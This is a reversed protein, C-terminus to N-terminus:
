RRKKKATKKVPKRKVAAKKRPASKKVTKKAVPKRKPASKKVPKRRSIKRAKPASSVTKELNPLPLGEPSPGISPMMNDQASSPAAPPANIISDVTKTELQNLDKNEKNIEQLTPLVTTQEVKKGSFKEKLSSFFGM